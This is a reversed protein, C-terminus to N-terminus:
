GLHEFVCTQRLRIKAVAKQSQRPEGKEFPKEVKAFQTSGFTPGSLRHHRLEIDNLLHFPPQFDSLTLLAKSSHLM